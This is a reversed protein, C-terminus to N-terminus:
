VTTETRAVTKGDVTLLVSVTSGSEISPTNTGAVTLSATEGVSWEPDSASNFPGTPGSDFGTASFFPVPPQHDLREGDVSVFVSLTRVDLADGSEHTFRLTNGDVTLDVAATPAPEPTVPTSGAGLMATGVIAALVVALAVMLIGGTVPANGRRSHSLRHSPPSHISWSM